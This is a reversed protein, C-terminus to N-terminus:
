QSACGIPKKAVVVNDIYLHLPRAAVATGGHYVNMWVREIKVSGVDRVYIGPKELALAGDIWALLVGDKAGITNVKFYQELCYWRNRELVGLGDKMWEWVDGFEDEMAAHYAYTGITTRGHLPNAPSLARTFHGRMSWGASPDARRGGWGAKGYTASLGPLKGGDVTPDWDDAFRLYYRFYVEEPEYGLKDRFDFGMDLGFNDGQAIEVRLAQGFLPKFRLKDDRDVREAHSGESLYSWESRWSPSEFGTAFLVDPNKAIGADRPYASAIGSVTAVAAASVPPDLRFIGIASGFAQTAVTTLALTAQSIRRGALAALDFQLVSRANSGVRLENRAGLAYATSCDLWVDAIPALTTTQAEGAVGITLRPRAAGAGERSGFAATDSRPGPLTALILGSNPYKDELWGRVLATVDWEVVRNAGGARLSFTAFPSEGQAQGAADRWDGLPHRWAIRAGANFYKCTAGDSGDYLKLRPDGASAGASFMLALVVGALHGPRRNM